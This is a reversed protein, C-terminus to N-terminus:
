SYLGIVMAGLVRPPRAGAEKERLWAQESYGQWVPRKEMGPFLISVVPVGDQLPEWGALHCPVCLCPWPLPASQPNFPYLSSAPLGMHHQRPSNLPIGPVVEWYLMLGWPAPTPPQYLQTHLFWGSLDSQVASPEQYSQQGRPLGEPDGGQSPSLSPHVSVSRLGPCHSCLRAPAKPSRIRGGNREVFVRTDGPSHEEAVEAQNM